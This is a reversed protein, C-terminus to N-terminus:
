KLSSQWPPSVQDQQVDQVIRVQLEREEFSDARDVGDLFCRCEPLVGLAGGNEHRIAAMDPVPDIATSSTTGATAAAFFPERLLVQLECPWLIATPSM